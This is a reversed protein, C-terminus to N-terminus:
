TLAQLPPTVGTASEEQRDLRAMGTFGQALRQTIVYDNVTQHTHFAQKLLEVWLHLGPKHEGAHVSTLSM